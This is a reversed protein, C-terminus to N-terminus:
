AVSISQQDFFDSIAAAHLAALLGLCSSCGHAAVLWLSNLQQEVISLLVNDKM